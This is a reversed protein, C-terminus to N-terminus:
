WSSNSWGSSLVGTGVSGSINLVGLLNTEASTQKVLLGALLIAAHPVFWCEHWFSWRDSWIGTSVFLRLTVDLSLDLEAFIWLILLSALLITADPNKWSSNRWSSSLVGTGVSGSIGLVGLLNTEASTQKVLLGALL